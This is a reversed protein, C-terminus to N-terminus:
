YFLPTHNNLIHNINYIVIKRLNPDYTTIAKKYTSYNMSEPFIIEGPGKGKSGFSKIFNGNKSNFIHFCYDQKQSDHIILLSDLCIMEMPDSFLFSDNLLNGKLTNSSQYNLSQYQPESNKCAGLLILFIIYYYRNM